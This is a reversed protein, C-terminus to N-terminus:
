SVKVDTLQSKATEYDESVLPLRDITVGIEILWQEVQHHIEIFMKAKEFRKELRVQYM